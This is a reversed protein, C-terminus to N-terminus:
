MLHAIRWVDNIYFLNLVDGQRGNLREGWEM